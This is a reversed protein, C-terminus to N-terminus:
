LSQSALKCWTDVFMLFKSKGQLIETFVLSEADKTICVHVARTLYSRNVSVLVVVLIKWSACLARQFFMPIETIVGHPLPRTVSPSDVLNSKEFPRGRPGLLL